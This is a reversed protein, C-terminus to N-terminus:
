ADAGVVERGAVYDLRIGVSGFLDGGLAIGLEAALNRYDREPNETFGHGIGFRAMTLYSWLGRRRAHSIEAEQLAPALGHMGTVATGFRAREWADRRLIRLREETLDSVTCVVAGLMRARPSRLARRRFGAEFRVRGPEAHAPDKVWQDYLTAWRHGVGARLYTAGRGLGGGGGILKVTLRKDRELLSLGHLLESRRTIGTFDRPLDLRLIDLDDFRVRGDVGVRETALTFMERM